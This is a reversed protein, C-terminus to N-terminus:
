AGHRRKQYLQNIHGVFVQGPLSEPTECYQQTCFLPRPWVEEAHAVASPLSHNFRGIERGSFCHAATTIVSVLSRARQGLVALRPATPPRRFILRPGVHNAAAGVLSVAPIWAVASATNGDALSPFRILRKQCVHATPRGSIIRNFAFVVVARIRGLIASPSRAGLLLTVFAPVSFTRFSNPHKLASAEQLYM